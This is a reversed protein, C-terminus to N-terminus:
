WSFSEVELRVKVDYGRRAIEGVTNRVEDIMGKPGSVLVCVEGGAYEILETALISQVNMRRSLFIGKEINALQGTKMVDDILEKSRCAWYLKARGPHVHLQPLIATIGVGGAVAILAPSHALPKSVPSHASYGTELLVPLTSRQRLKQTLGTQTRLYFTIGAHPVSSTESGGDSNERVLHTTAQPQKEVDDKSADSHLTSPSDSGLMSNAISFPHNDWFRWTLTPFYLYAHGSATVGPITVRLYDDDIVTIEATKVGNRAVRLLRFLRDFGWVAMCVWIWTEYGWQHSFEFIIHYYCGVLVLISVVQHWALFLEYFKRRIPPISAPFLVTMGITAVIGWIWYPLKFETSYQSTVIYLRLYMISHLIAQLTAIAAIWRHLLLFTSHSWNTLWLLVNNRGAFLFVLPLNAFSLLGLRNSVLMQIWQSRNDPYWVNPNIWQYNIGSLFANIFIFYLLFLGQGRTPMQVMGYLVPTDHKDGFLPPNIVLANFKSRLAGPFPVFRLLSLGIPIVLGSLLIVLRDDILM